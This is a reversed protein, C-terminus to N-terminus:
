FIFGIVKNKSAKKMPIEPIELACSPMLLWFGSSDDIISIYEVVL